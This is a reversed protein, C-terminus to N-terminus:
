RPLAASGQRVQNIAQLQAADLLDVAHLPALIRVLPEPPTFPAQEEFFSCRSVDLQMAFATM